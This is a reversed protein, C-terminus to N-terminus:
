HVPVWVLMLSVKIAAWWPGWPEYHFHVVVGGDPGMAPQLVRVAARVAVFFFYSCRPPPGKVDFVFHALRPTSRSGGEGRTCNPAAKEASGAGAEPSLRQSQLKTRGRGAVGKWGEADTKPIFGHTLCCSSSRSSGGAGASDGHVPIEGASSCRLMHVDRGDEALVTGAEEGSTHADDSVVLTASLQVWGLYSAPSPM